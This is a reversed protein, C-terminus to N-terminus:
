GEADTLERHPKDKYFNKAWVGCEPCREDFHPPEITYVAWSFGMGCNVCELQRPLLHGATGPRGPPELKFMSAFPVFPELKPKKDEPQPPKQGRRRYGEERAKRLREHYEESPTM